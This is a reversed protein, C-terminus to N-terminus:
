QWGGYFYTRACREGCFHLALADSDGRGLPRECYSCKISEGWKMRSFLQRFTLELSRAIDNLASPYNGRELPGSVAGFKLTARFRYSSVLSEGDAIVDDLVAVEIADCVDRKLMIEIERCMRQEVVANARESNMARGKEDNKRQYDLCRNGIPSVPKTFAESQYFSFRPSM